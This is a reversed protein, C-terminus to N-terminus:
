DARAHGLSESLAQGEAKLQRALGGRVSADLTAAPGIVTLALVLHGAGDFVPAALANVGPLSLGV